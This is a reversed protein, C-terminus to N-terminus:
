RRYIHTTIVLVNVLRDDGDLKLANKENNNTM